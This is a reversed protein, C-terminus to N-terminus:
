EKATTAMSQLQIIFEEEIKYHLCNNKLKEIYGLEELRNLAPLIETSLEYRFRPVFSNLIAEKDVVFFERVDKHSPNNIDNKIISMFHPFDHFLRDLDLIKKNKIRAVNKRNNMFKQIQLGSLATTLGGALFGFLFSIDM